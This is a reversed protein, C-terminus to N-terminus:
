EKWLRKDLNFTIMAKKLSRRVDSSRSGGQKELSMSKEAEEEEKALVLEARKALMTSLTARPVLSYVLDCDLGDALRRLSDLTITGKRENEELRALTSKAVGVRVALVQASMGLSVRIAQVWGEKPRTIKVKRIDSFLRDLTTRLSLAKDKNANM